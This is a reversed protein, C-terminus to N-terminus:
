LRANQPYCDILCLPVPKTIICYGFKEYYQLHKAPVETEPNRTMEHCERRM